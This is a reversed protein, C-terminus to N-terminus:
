QREGDGHGLLGHRLGPRTKAAQRFSREAEFYYFSHLQAVGQDIFAQAEPKTTTVPFHVKGMGPMLYAAAAARRQLGRRAGLAGAGARRTPERHGLGDAQRTGSRAPKEHVLLGVHRLRDGRDREAVRAYVEGRPNVGHHVRAPPSLIRVSAPLPIRTGKRLPRRLDEIPRQTGLRIVGKHDVSALTQGDPSFAVGNVRAEHGTLCLMEQGTATDWIRVTQDRGATALTKGDPSFALHLVDGNHGFLTARPKGSTLDWLQPPADRHASALTSGDPAFALAFVHPGTTLVRSKLTRCDTLRVQGDLAGSALIRGDPSFAVAFITETHDKLMALQRGTQVDWLRVTRDDSGSALTRGDPSFSVARAMGEHGSLVARM